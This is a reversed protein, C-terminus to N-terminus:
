ASLRELAARLESRDFPGTFRDRVVGDAGALYLVPESQLKFAGLAPAAVKATRDTFIEVHISRVRDAFAAQEGLLIDLVPGCTATQCYAPTAFLVALPRGETLAADLSVQHLPCQEERTCIPDVGRNDATTPTPTSVLRDGPKPTPDQAPDLVQVAATAMRGGVDVQLAYAGPSPFQTRALYYPTELGEAHREAPIPDGLERSQPAQGFRVTVPEDTDVPKRDADVMLIAVREDPRGALTGFTGILLNLQERQRTDDPVSIAPRDSEDDNGCAAAAVLAASGALFWRRSVPTSM